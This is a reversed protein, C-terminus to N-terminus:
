SDERAEIVVLAALRSFASASKLRLLSNDSRLSMGIRIVDAELDGEVDCRACTSLAPWETSSALAATSLACSREVLGGDGRRQVARDRLQVGLEAFRTRPVTWFAPVSIM